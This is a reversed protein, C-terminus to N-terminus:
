KYIDHDGIALLGAVGDPLWKFAIRYSYNVSFSWKGAMKGQLKHVKLQRHHSRNKFLAIKEIAEEQLGLPLKKLQNLFAPAYEIDIM